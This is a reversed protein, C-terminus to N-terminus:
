ESTHEESRQSFHSYCEDCLRLYDKNPCDSCFEINTSITASTHEGAKQLSKTSQKRIICGLTRPPLHPLQDLRADTPLRRCTLQPPPPQALVRHLGLYRNCGCPHEH